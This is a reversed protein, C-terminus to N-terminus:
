WRLLTARTVDVTRIHRYMHIFIALGVAAEGAALAISFLTFAIGDMHGYHNAFAVFNINAANLILEVAILVRLANRQSVLGYVGIAFLLSSLVLAHATPIM